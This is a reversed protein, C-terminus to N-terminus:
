NQKRCWVIRGHRLFFHAGCGTKQWVSPILTASGDDDYRLTWCPTDDTLLNMNLIAGCGEPCVMSAHFRTGREEVVYFVNPKLKDPLDTVFETRYVKRRQFFFAVVLRWIANWLSRLHGMM